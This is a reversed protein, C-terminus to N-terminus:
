PQSLRYFLASAEAPLRLRFEGNILAPTASCNTWGGTELSGSAQLTFNTAWGPWTLMVEGVDAAIRLVPFPHVTVSGNEYATALPLAASDSIERPVPLDGFGIATTGTTAGSLSRLNLKVLENAGAPFSGSNLGLAVGLKGSAVQTSNVNLTANGSGAGKGASVFSIRTPDFALSFGLASEHGTGKLMISVVGTQGTFWTTNVVVLSRDSGDKAISGGSGGGPVEGTPGGVVTLPDAAGTYRGVQVWDTVKIAGDGLTSRPACDARQFESANTPYDLRAAYRGLLVWDSVTVARDGNPRPSSDGELITASLSVNGSAYNASLTAAQADVLQRVTPSDGFSIATSTSSSRVATSFTVLIVQHLGNTMTTDTPLALILGV